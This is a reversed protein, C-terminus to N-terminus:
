ARNGPKSGQLITTSRLIHSMLRLSLASSENKLHVVINNDHRSIHSAFLFFTHVSSEINQPCIFQGSDNLPKKLVKMM